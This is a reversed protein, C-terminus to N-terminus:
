AGNSETRADLKRTVWRRLLHEPTTGAAEALRGVEEVQDAALPITIAHIEDRALVPQDVAELEADFDTVDHTDWFEALERVSDTVPLAPTTPKTM